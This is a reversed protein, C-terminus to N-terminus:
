SGAAGARVSRHARLDGATGQPQSRPFRRLGFLGQQQIEDSGIGITYIRIGRAAALKAAQLPEVISATDAGDSLLVLVRDSEPRDQLRKVALGIADGIATSGGAFGIRAEQLLSSLTALDFTLPTQLYAQTGFLILGLRDGKRKEVFDGVVAKVVSLRDVLSDGVRMDEVKMSESIDVAVLLDRGSAHIAVPDGVWAPRSAATLAAIWVICLLAFALWRRYDHSGSGEAVATGLHAFLSTKLAAGSVPAPRRLHRYLWPLPLLILMWPWTFSLM